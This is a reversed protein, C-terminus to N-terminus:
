IKLPMIIHRFCDNTKSANEPDDIPEIMIPSLPNEFSISVHTTEIVWLVELFYTSNIWVINDEGEVASPLTINWEWIQTESTELLVGNASSISMKISYNNERSVLNIKRLASMLDVKNVEVKTSFSTPFFSLYDPFKGNLLRSYVKTNGSLFAIQNEWSIIKIDEQNWIISKIQSATKGPIIGYFVNDIETTLSTTYESLRFSDTSAFTVQTGKINVAIGALTPRINWEASSFLTKDISKKVINGKINLTVEEKISPILPFDSAPVWKIKLTSNVTDIKLSENNILEIHISDDNILSIYSTFLKSPVCFTWESEIHIDNSIMYEIAMELNNSTLIINNFNVKILINELIPTTTISATAHNVIDLWKKLESTHITFKM